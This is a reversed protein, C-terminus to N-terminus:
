GEEGSVEDWEARTVPRVDYIVRFRRVLKNVRKKLKRALRDADDTNSLAM